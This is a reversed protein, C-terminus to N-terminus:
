TRTHAKATRSLRARNITRRVAAVSAADVLLYGSSWKRARLQGRAVARRVRAPTWRLMTAAERTSLEGYRMKVLEQQTLFYKRLSSDHPHLPLPFIATAAAACQRRRPSGTRKRM